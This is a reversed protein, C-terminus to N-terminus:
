QREMLPLILHSPYESRLFVRNIAPICQDHGEDHIDGGTNSNRVFRPFNSSSVELRIRHGPLFVNSIVWPELQFKNIYRHELLEPEMLSKHYRARLIGETLIIACGDSFIDVLKGTFDTDLVSSSIFLDLKVPGTVEVLM